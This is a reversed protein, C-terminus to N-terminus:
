ENHHLDLMLPSVNDVVLTWLNYDRDKTFVDFRKRFLIRGGALVRSRYRAPLTTSSIQLAAEIEVQIPM